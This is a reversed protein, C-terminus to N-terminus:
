ELRSLAAHHDERGKEHEVIQFQTGRMHFPHDMDAENVIRHWDQSQDAHSRTATNRRSRIM